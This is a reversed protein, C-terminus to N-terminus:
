QATANRICKPASWAMTAAQGDSQGIAVLAGVTFCYGKKADLGSLTVTTAHPALAQPPTKVPSGDSQQVWIPYDNGKALKWRLVVIQGKDLARLDRPKAARIVRAPVPVPASSGATPPPTSTSALPKANHKKKEGGASGLLLFGGIGVGAGMVVAVLVGAVVAGQRGKRDETRPPFPDPQEPTKPLTQPTAERFHPGPM